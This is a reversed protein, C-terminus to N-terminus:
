IIDKIVKYIGVSMAIMIVTAITTPMYVPNFLRYLGQIAGSVKPLLSALIKFSEGVFIFFDVIVTFLHSLLTIM